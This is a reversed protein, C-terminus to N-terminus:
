PQDKIVPKAYLPKALGNDIEFKNAEIYCIKGADDDYPTFLGVPEQEQSAKIIAELEAVREIADLWDLKNNGAECRRNWDAITAELQKNRREVVEVLDLLETIRQNAEYLQETLENCMIALQETLENCMIASNQQYQKLRDLEPQMVAQAAKWVGWNGESNSCMDFGSKEFEERQKDM